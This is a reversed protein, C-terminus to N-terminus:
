DSLVQSQKDEAKVGHLEEDETTLSNKLIAQAIVMDLPSDIDIVVGEENVIGRHDRGLFTHPHAPDLGDIEHFLARHSLVVAGGDPVYSPPLEQRRYIGNFLQKGEWPEVKGDEGLRAQWWPHYKGVPAYSQVSDCGTERWLTIARDILGIPRVPVNGYLLVVASVRANPPDEQEFWEIAERLADDVRATDSALVDSRNHARAGMNRAISLIEDSDSSVLVTDIGTAALAHEITWVACPKGAILAVNKGPVGKSGARALVVAVVLGPQQGPQISPRQADTAM